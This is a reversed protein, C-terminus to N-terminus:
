NITAAWPKLASFVVEVTDAETVDLESDLAM